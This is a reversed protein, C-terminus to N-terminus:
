IAASAHRPRRFVGAVALAGMAAFTLQAPHRLMVPLIVAGSSGDHLLQGTDDDASALTPTVQGPVVDTVIMQHESDEWADEFVSRPVVEMAGDPTGPDGLYVYNEDVGTVVVAHDLAHGGSQGDDDVRDWVESSDIYCIIDRGQDLMAGLGDISGSEIHADIGFSEMLQLGQDLTLGDSSDLVGDGDTDRMQLWGFDKAKDVIPQEGINQGLFEGVIQAISSPVCYGNISQQFWFQESGEPDGHLTTPLALTGDVSQPDRAVVTSDPLAGDQFCDPNCYWDSPLPTPDQQVPSQVPSQTVDVVPDQPQVQTDDYVPTQSQDQPQTTPDGGGLDGIPIQEDQGLQTIEEESMDGSHDADVGVLDIGGDYNSDIGVTDVTGDGDTDLAIVDDGVYADITGDQNSDVPTLGDPTTESM